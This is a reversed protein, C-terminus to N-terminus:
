FLSVGHIDSIEGALVFSQCQVREERNITRSFGLRRGSCFREPALPERRPWPGRRAWHAEVGFSAGQFTAPRLGEEPTSSHEIAESGCPQGGSEVWEWARSRPLLAGRTGSEHAPNISLIEGIFDIVDLRSLYSGPRSLACGTFM